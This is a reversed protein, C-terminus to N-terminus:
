WQITGHPHVSSVFCGDEGQPQWYLAGLMGRSQGNQGPAWSSHNVNRALSLECRRSFPSSCRRRFSINMWFRFMRTMEIDM